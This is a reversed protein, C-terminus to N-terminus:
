QAKAVAAKPMQPTGRQVIWTVYYMSNGGCGDPSSSGAHTTVQTHPGSATLNVLNQYPFVDQAAAVAGDCNPDLLSSAEGVLWGAAAGLLPGLLPIPIASGIAAGAATAGKSALASAAKDLLSYVESESSHGSDAILYNMTVQGKPDVVINSFQLGVKFTGNNLNGMSKTLTQPTGGGAAPANLLTFSVYDTDQHRSRTDTIRFSDLIFTFTPTEFEVASFHLPSVTSM